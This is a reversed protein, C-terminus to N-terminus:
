TRRREKVSDRELLTNAFVADLRKDSGDILALAGEVAARGLEEWPQAVTTQPPTLLGSVIPTEYSIVSLEDPIRVKLDHLLVRNVALSLDEGCILLATPGHSLISEVATRIGRSEVYGILNAAPKVGSAEFAERFGKEREKAGWTASTVELFGIKRHGRDLLHKAAIRAGQAHDSAVRHFNPAEIRNNIMVVPIDRITALPGCDSGFVIAIIGQIYNRYVADLNENPLLELIAGKAAMHKALTTITNSIFGVENAHELDQVVLGVSVRRASIKPMYRVRKAATLVSERTQDAVDQKNNFVRSVTGISVGAKKAVDYISGCSKSKPINM